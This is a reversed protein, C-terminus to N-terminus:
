YPLVCDFGFNTVCIETQNM